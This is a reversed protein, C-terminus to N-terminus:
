VKPSYDEHLTIQFFSQALALFRDMTDGRKPQLMYIVGSDSLASNLIWLLDSHFDKFFM